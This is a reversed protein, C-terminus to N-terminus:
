RGLAADATRWGGGVRDSDTVRDSTLEDAKDSAGCPLHRQTAEPQTKLVWSLAWCVVHEPFAIWRTSSFITELIIIANYM